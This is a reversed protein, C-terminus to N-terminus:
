DGNEGDPATGSGTSSDGNQERREIREQLLRLKREHYRREAPVVFVFWVLLGIALAVLTGILQVSM